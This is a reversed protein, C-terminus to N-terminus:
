DFFFKVKGLFEDQTLEYKLLLKNLLAFLQKDDERGWRRQKLFRLDLSLTDDSKSAAHDLSDRPLWESVKRLKTLERPYTISIKYQSDGEIQDKVKAESADEM